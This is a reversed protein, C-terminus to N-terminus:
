SPRPDRASRPNPFASRVEQPSEHQPSATASATATPAASPTAPASTPASAANPSHPLVAASSSSDDSEAPPSDSRVQAAGEAAREVPSLRYVLANAQAGLGIGCVMAARLSPGVPEPESGRILDDIRVWVHRWTAGDSSDIREEFTYLLTHGAGEAEGVHALVAVPIYEHYRVADDAHRFPVLIPGDLDVFTLLRAGGEGVGRVLEVHLLAPPVGTAPSCRLDCMSTYSQKVCRDCDTEVPHDTCYCLGCKFEEVAIELLQEILGAVSFKFGVAARPDPKPVNLQLSWAVASKRTTDKAHRKCGDLSMVLTLTRGLDFALAAGLGGRLADASVPLGSANLPLSEDLLTASALNLFLESSDQMLHLQDAMYKGEVLLAGIWKLLAAPALREPGSADYLEKAIDVSGTRLTDNISRLYLLLQLVVALWCQHLTPDNVFFEM